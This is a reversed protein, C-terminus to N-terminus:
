PIVPFVQAAKKDSVQRSLGVQIERQQWEGLGNPGVLALLACCAGLHQELWPQWPQGAPLAYRDLFATLGADRLRARLTEAAASDARSYSLFVDYGGTEGTVDCDYM